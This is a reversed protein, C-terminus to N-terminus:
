KAPTTAGSNIRSVDSFAYITEEIYESMNISVTSDDNYKIKMGLYTHEKGNTIKLGGFRDNFKKIIEDVVSQDNHSVNLDDVYWAMSCQKGNIIKNAVRTDYDNIYFGNRQSNWCIARVM